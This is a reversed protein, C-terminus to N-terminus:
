QEQKIRSMIDEIGQVTDILEDGKFVLLRPVTKINYQKFFEINDEMQKIEINLSEANIRTKLMKCPGCFEASALILKPKKKFINDWGDRYAQNPPETKIYRGTVDNKAINGTAM